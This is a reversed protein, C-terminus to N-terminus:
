YSWNSLINYNPPDVSLNQDSVKTDKLKSFARNDLLSFKLEERMSLELALWRKQDLQGLREFYNVTDGYVQRFKKTKDQFFIVYLDWLCFIFCVTIFVINESM